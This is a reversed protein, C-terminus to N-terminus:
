RAQDIILLALYPVMNFVFWLLKYFAMGAYHIADFREVSLSFWRTHLRYVWDHALAIFAFWWMLISFNIISCWGLFERLTDISMM